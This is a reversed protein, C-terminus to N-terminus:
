AFPCPAVHKEGVAKDCHKCALSEAGGRLRKTYPCTAGKNSLHGIQGCSYCKRTDKYTGGGGGGHGGGYGGGGGQGGGRSRLHRRLAELKKELTLVYSQVETLDAKGTINGSEDVVSAYYEGASLAGGNGFIARKPPYVESGGSVTARGADSAEQLVKSNLQSLAPLNPLLPLSLKPITDGHISVFVDGITTAINWNHFSLLKEGGGYTLAAAVFVHREDETALFMYPLMAALEPSLMRNKIAGVYQETLADKRVASFEKKAEGFAELMHQYAHLRRKEAAEFHTKHAAFAEIMAKDRETGTMHAAFADIMAKDRAQQLQLQQQQQQMMQTLQAEMADSKEKLAKFDAETAM